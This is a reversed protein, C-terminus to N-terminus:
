YMPFHELVHGSVSPIAVLFNKIWEMKIGGTRLCSGIGLPNRRIKGQDVISQKHPELVHGSVSPIAVIWWSSPNDNGALTRLCSGIGLPNRSVM